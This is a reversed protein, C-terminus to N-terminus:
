LNLEECACNFRRGQEDLPRVALIEFIRAGFRFRCAPQVDLNPRIHIEHTLRSKRGHASEAEHGSGTIIRAWLTALPQWTVSNGGAGDAVTVAHELVLRHRLHGISLDHM